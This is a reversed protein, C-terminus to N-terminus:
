TFWRAYVGGVGGDGNAKRCPLILAFLAVDCLPASLWLTPTLPHETLGRRAKM